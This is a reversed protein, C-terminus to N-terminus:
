DTLGVGELKLVHRTQLFINHPQVWDFTKLYQHNNTSSEDSFLKLWISFYTNPPYTIVLHIKVSKSHMNGSRGGWFLGTTVIKIDGVCTM